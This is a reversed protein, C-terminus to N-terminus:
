TMIRLIFRVQGELWEDDVYRNLYVMDGENLGLESDFQAVFNFKAIAYPRVNVGSETYGVASADKKGFVSLNESLKNYDLGDRRQDETPSSLQAFSSNANRSEKLVGLNESLKSYDVPQQLASHEDTMQANSKNLISLNESIKNYDPTPMLLNDGSNNETKMSKFLSLNENVRNYDPTIMLGSSNNKEQDSATAATSAFVKSLSEDLKAFARATEGEEQRKKRRYLEGLNESLDQFFNSKTFVIWYPYM